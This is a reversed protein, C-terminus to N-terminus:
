RLGRATRAASKRDVREQRHLRAFEAMSLNPDTITKAVPTGGGAVRSPPTPASSPAKPKPQNTSAGAAPTQQTKPPIVTDGAKPLKTRVVGLEMLQQSPPLRAIRVAEAKHKGLYHLIAPGDEGLVVERAAEAALVPLTKTVEDFDPHDKAFSQARTLFTSLERQAQQQPTDNASASASKVAKAAEREAKQKAWQQVRERYKAEDYQIDTDAMNPFPADPEEKPAPATAPITGLRANLEAIVKDRNRIQEEAYEGYARYDDREGVLEQIRAAASGKKPAAHPAANPDTDGSPAASPDASSASSTDDGVAGDESATPDTSSGEGGSPDAAADPSAAADTTAQATPTPEGPFPSISDDVQTQAQKEYNTIDDRTFAM